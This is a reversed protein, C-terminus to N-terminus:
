FRFRLGARGGYGEYDGGNAYRGEFFGSIAGEKSGINMGITGEGYDRIRQNTFAVTQGGSTFTVNDQGKFEHVYNGGAYITLTAPGIDSTVGVRAGAKGRVGDADNFAFNGSAVGFDDFNSHTYSVSASPEMWLRGGFRLGAEAKAGYVSGNLKQSYRGSNSTNDGWYYDYKSLANFFFTGSSYSAYVGANVADFNIRDASGAFNLNSNIYGGTIGFAFSGGAAPGGFDVGMQAGFYDQRYGLNAPTTVGNFTFNRTNTREEVQGLIQGWIRGGGSGAGNAAVNDRLERMHGSWADGSQLWLNRAAEAFVATRYVGAGPTAILNYSFTTPNYAIGYQVLGQDVLTGDLVFANADSSSGAQVLLTGASTSLVAPGTNLNTLSVVTSGSAAGGIRLQDALNTAGGLNVDLGLQASGSGSYSGPLVLVDGVHGNRLDILGTNAFSELGTLTITGATPALGLVRLTGSNNFLDAGVGFDSNSNANFTGSNNVTDQNATLLLRGTITGTNNVTAGGGTISLAANGGSITGANNVTTGTGSSITAGNNAGALTGSTLALNATTAAAITVGDLSASNTNGSLTVAVPGATSTASIAGSTPGTTTVGTSTINVAGGGRAVIGRSSTGTTLVQGVNITVANTATVNIGDANAGATSLTGTGNITATATAQPGFFLVGAPVFVGTSGVGTTTITGYNVTAGQTGTIVIGRANAGTTSITTAGARATGGNSTVRIADAGTGSTTVSLPTVVAGGAAANAVAGFANAGSTRITGGNITATGSSGTQASAGISNAGLTTITGGNVTVNGVDSRVSVGTANAGSTSVTGSTVIITGRNNDAEIGLASDGTTTTSGGVITINGTYSSALIGTANTGTTRIIGTTANIAGYNTALLVGYSGSDSTRITTTPSARVILSQTGTALGFIGINLTGSTDIVVDPNVVITLDVPPVIYTVGNAYPNNAATCTVTGGPPVAGCENDALAPTAASALILAAMGVGLRLRQSTILAAPKKPIALFM